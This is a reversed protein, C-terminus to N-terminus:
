HRQVWRLAAAALMLFVASPALATLVAPWAHLLGLTSFLSNLLQFSIGMMIGIFIKFSVGGSRVQLYAFPLALAMMVFVALPYTLKKWFAISYRQNDQRNEELHNSYLALDWASMRDPDTARLVTLLQPTLETHLDRQAEQKVSVLQMQQAQPQMQAWQGSRAAAEFRTETVNQLRWTHQGQYRASDASIQAMLRFEHDFEYLKLGLLQGDPRSERVNLFRTGQAKGDKDKIIDKTWIGSRFELKSSADLLSQRMRQGWLTSAPAIFEGFAFTILAFLVGIRMLMRAAQWTSMASARMITFESRAALQALAYVTGILAAIPMADYVYAPLGSLVYLFAHQFRYAGKGISQSEGSLDIFAFLALFAILVFAVSQMVERGVYRQLVKM